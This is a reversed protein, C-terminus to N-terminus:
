KESAIKFDYDSFWSTKPCMTDYCRESSMISKPIKCVPCKEVSEPLSISITECDSLDFSMAPQAAGLDLSVEEQSLFISDDNSMTQGFLFNNKPINSFDFETEKRYEEYSEDEVIDINGNFIFSCGRIFHEFEPLIQDLSDARFEVTRKTAVTGDYPTPEHEYIFTYKAM